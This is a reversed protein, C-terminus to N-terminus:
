EEGEDNACLVNDILKRLDKLNERSFHVSNGGSLKWGVIETVEEDECLCSIIFAENNESDEPCHAIIFPDNTYLIGM